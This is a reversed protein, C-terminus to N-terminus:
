GGVSPAAAAHRNGDNPERPRLWRPGSAGTRVSLGEMNDLEFTTDLRAVVEGDLPHDPAGNHTWPMRRLEVGVGQVPDYRRELTLLNGDPLRRVDTMSYPSVPVIARPAPRRDNATAASRNADIEFPLTWARFNDARNRFHESM